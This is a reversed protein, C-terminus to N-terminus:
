NGELAAIRAELADCKASLEQVAKVLIPYTAMPRAELKEPNEWSVLRTLTTSSHDLEVDYLEQAIFGIEPRDGRRRPRAPSPPPPVPTRRSV